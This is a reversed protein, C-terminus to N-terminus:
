VTVVVKGLQQNSELYRHAAVIDALAFTRSIVPKLRGEALGRLVLAKARAFREPHNWITSAVWGRVSLHKLAAPWHPHTTPQGSLGGYIYLIGEEAMAQALTEVYPGGVPDFVIRAGKGGTIKMVEAVLDAEETAIVHTAGLAQLAQEKTKRRTAAIPVAGAWNALQIAAIGVSSSAARIIVHDGVTAHAGELIALATLYQMWIAAAETSSLAPPAALLSRAPVIATDAYVGYEGLRFTPLVSVRQDVSFDRVDEGVSEIVGAAEYGILTPLKPKVPYQGARFAAESRNLGIAEIRMRVEGPGPRGVDLEEIRLVEPGGHEYVRVVKAM